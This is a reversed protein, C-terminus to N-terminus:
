PRIGDKDFIHGLFLIESKGFECKNLNIQLGYERLRELVIRLHEKHENLNKSAVRLDDIYAFVFPLGRMAKDMYRQFTQAANRMGFTMVPFEYLGFPTIIATKPIDEPNVPIQHYARVLDIKSFIVCDDLNLSAEQINPVPYRDPETQTNLKRYDGCPRSTNDKKPVMHLPSAWESKSPRCIGLRMMEEFQTKAEQYKGPALRRAQEVVPRGTTEIYHYIGADAKKILANENPRTLDSFEQLLDDFNSDQTAFTTFNVENNEVEALEGQKSLGTIEDRLCHNRVDVM